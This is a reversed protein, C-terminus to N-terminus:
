NKPRIVSGSAKYSWFSPKGGIYFKGPRGGLDSRCTTAGDIGTTIIDNYHTVAEDPMSWHGLTFQLQGRQVLENVLEKTAKDM